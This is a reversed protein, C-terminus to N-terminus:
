AAITITKGGAANDTETYPIAAVTVQSLYNYTPSDPTIVQQTTSPTVTKAQASVDESGSMEGEVGLITIGERINGPIIKAQETADIGVTGSGDHYGQQISYTGAKTAITGTVGGRNPMTGTLKQGNKYATKTALIEAAVATADSTDADYDCTGVGPAGSPLHFKKGSLVDSVQVDDGTLDILTNGGYVVKNVYQNNAM